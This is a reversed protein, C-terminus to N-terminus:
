RVTQAATDLAEEQGARRGPLNAVCARSDYRRTRRDSEPTEGRQRAAVIRAAREPDRYCPVAYEPGDGAM